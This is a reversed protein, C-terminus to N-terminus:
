HHVLIGNLHLLFCAIKPSKPPQPGFILKMGVLDVMHCIKLINANGDLGDLRIACAQMTQNSDMTIQTEYDPYIIIKPTVSQLM